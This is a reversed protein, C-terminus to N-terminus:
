FFKRLLAYSDAFADLTLTSAVFAQMISAHVIVRKNSNAAVTVTKHNDILYRKLDKKKATNKSQKM